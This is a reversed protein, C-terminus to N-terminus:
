SDITPVTHTAGKSFETEEFFSLLNCGSCCILLIVIVIVTIKTDILM